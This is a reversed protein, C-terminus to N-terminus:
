GVEVKTFYNLASMTNLLKKIFAAGASGIDMELQLINEGEKKAASSHVVGEKRGKAESALNFADIFDTLEKGIAERKNTAEPKVIATITCDFNLRTVTLEYSLDKLKFPLAAKLYMQRNYMAIDIGEIWFEIDNSDIDTDKTDYIRGSKSQWFLLVFNWNNNNYINISLKSVLGKEYVFRTDDKSITSISVHKNVKYGVTKEFLPTLQADATAVFEESVSLGSQNKFMEIVADYYRLLTMPPPTLNKKYLDVNSLEFWFSADACDIDSDAIDYIRGSASKWFFSVAEKIRGVQLWCNISSIEGKQYIFEEGYEWTVWISSNIKIGTEKEFYASLQNNACRMFEDSVTVTYYTDLLKKWGADLLSIM